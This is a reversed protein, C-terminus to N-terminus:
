QENFQGIEEHIFHVINEKEELRPVVPNPFILVDNHWNYKMVRRKARNKKAFNLDSSNINGKTLLKM